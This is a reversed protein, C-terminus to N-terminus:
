GSIRFRAWLEFLMAASHFRFFITVPYTVAEIATWTKQYVIKGYPYSNVGGNRVEVFSDLAWLSLNTTLLFLCWQQVRRASRRSESSAKNPTYRRSFIIVITQFIKTCILVCAGIITVLATDPSFAKINKMFAEAASFLTTFDFAFSGVVGIILLIDDSSVKHVHKQHKQLNSLVRSIAFFQLCSTVAELILFMQRSKTSQQDPSGDFTLSAAFVALGLCLGAVLGPQSRNSVSLQNAQGDEVSPAPANGREMGFAEGNEDNASSPATQVTTLDQMQCSISYLIGAAILSFELTLPTAFESYENALNIAGDSAKHEDQDTTFIGTEDSVYKVWVCAHVLMTHFIIFKVKGSNAFSACNYTQLFLIQTVTFLWRIVDYAIDIRCVVDKHIVYNSNNRNPAMLVHHSTNTASYTFCNETSNAHPYVMLRLSIVLLTGAGFVYAGALVYKLSYHERSFHFRVFRENSGKLFVFVQGIVSMSIISILFCKIFSASQFKVHKVERETILLMIFACLAIVIYTLWPINSGSVAERLSRLALVNSTDFQIWSRFRAFRQSYWPTNRTQNREDVLPSYRMSSTCSEFSSESEKDSESDRKKSLDAHNLFSQTNCIRRSSNEPTKLLSQTDAM